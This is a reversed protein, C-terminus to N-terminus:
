TPVRRGGCLRESSGKSYKHFKRSSQLDARTEYRTRGCIRIGIVLGSRLVMVVCSSHVSLSIPKDPVAWMEWIYDMIHGRCGVFGFCFCVSETALHGDERVGTVLSMVCTTIPPLSQRPFAEDQVCRFDASYSTVGVSSIIRTAQTRPCM